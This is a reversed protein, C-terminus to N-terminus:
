PASSPSSGNLPWPRTPCADVQPDPDPDPVISTGALRPRGFSLPRHAVGIWVGARAWRGDGRRAGRGCVTTADGSASAALAGSRLTDTALRHWHGGARIGCVCRGLIYVVNILGIALAIVLDIVRKEGRDILHLHDRVVSSPMPSRRRHQVRRSRLRLAAVPGFHVVLCWM